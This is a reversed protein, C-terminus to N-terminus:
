VPSSQFAEVDSADFIHRLPQVFTSAMECHTTTHSTVHYNVDGARTCSTPLPLLPESDRYSSSFSRAHAGNANNANAIQLTSTCIQKDRTTGYNGRAAAQCARQTFPARIGGGSSRLFVEGLDTYNYSGSVLAPSYGRKDLNPKPSFM